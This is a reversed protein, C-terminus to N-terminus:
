LNGLLAKRLWEIAIFSCRLRSARYKVTRRGHPDGVEEAATEMTDTAHHSLQVAADVADAHDPRSPTKRAQSSGYM